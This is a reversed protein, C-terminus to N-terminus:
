SVQSYLRLFPSSSSLSGPLSLHRHLFTSQLKAPPLSDPDASPRRSFSRSNKRQIRAPAHETRTTHFKRTSLPSSSSPVHLSTPSTTSADAVTLNSFPNAQEDRPSLAAPPTNKSQFAPYTLTPTCTSHYRPLVGQRYPGRRHEKAPWSPQPHSPPPFPNTCFHPRGEPQNKM